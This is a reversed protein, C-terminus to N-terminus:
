ANHRRVLELRKFATQTLVNDAGVLDNLRKYNDEILPRAEAFRNQRALCEGLASRAILLNPDDEALKQQLMEVNERLMPEGKAAHGTRVMALGVLGLCLSYDSATELHMKRAMQLAKEGFNITQGYDPKGFYAKTLYALAEFSGFSNGFRKSFIGYAESIAAIGADHQGKSGLLLGLNILGTALRGSYREPMKRFDEVSRRFNGEASDLDGSFMQARGLSLLTFASDPNDKGLLADSISVSEQLLPLADTYKRRRIFAEGQISLGLALLKAGAPSAERETAIGSELLLEAEDHDGKDILVNALLIEVKATDGNNEGFATRCNDLALRLAQEAKINLGLDSFTEGITLYAQARLDPQDKFISEIQNFSDDLIETVKVDKGMQEPSAASLIQKLFENIHEAKSQEALAQDREAKVARAQWLTAFMGACLTLLILAAAGVGIMNRRIFKATRYRFTNPRASVPRGSLYRELDDALADVSKYRREPKGRLAMLVINDLDGRLQSIRVDPTPRSPLPPVDGSLRIIENLDKGDFKHPLKKTLLEYLVVGLSYIDCALTAADGSIQEPAAYALTLARFATQTTQASTTTDLIKALGFDLLKPEGDSNVLINGPKIDRHVVLNQHAYSVASCVKLFLALTDNLSLGGNNVFDNVSNGEVFEMVLFPEGNESVGGDLLKAINPHNLSALIQRERRFREITHSEAITQRVIKLAVEQDFEGDTRKALFVAGMGGYGIERIITYNGFKRGAALTPVSFVQEQSLIPTNIFDESEAYSTLWSEIETRLEVDEKCELEVFGQRRGPELELASSFIDKVKEWNAPKNM